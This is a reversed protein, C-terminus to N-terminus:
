IMKLYLGCPVHSPALQLSRSRSKYKSRKTIEVVKQSQHKSECHFFTIIMNVIFLVHTTGGTKFHNIIRRHHGILTYLFDNKVAQYEALSLSAYILGFTMEVQGLFTKNLLISKM